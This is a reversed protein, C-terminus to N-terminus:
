YGKFITEVLTVLNIVKEAYITLIILTSCACLTAVHSSTLTHSMKTNESSVLSSVINIGTLTSIIKFLVITYLTTYACDAVFNKAFIFFPIFGPFPPVNVFTLTGLGLTFTAPLPENKIFQLDKITILERDFKRIFLLGRLLILISLGLVIFIFLSSAIINTYSAFFGVFLMGTTGLTHLAIINKIINQKFAGWFGAFMGLMGLILFIIKFSECKFIVFLRIIILFYVFNSLFVIFIFQPLDIKEVAAIYLKHFPCFLMKALLGFTVLTIAFFILPNEMITLKTFSLKEVLLTFNTTQYIGYFLASGFLFFASGAGYAIFINFIARNECQKNILFIISFSILEISIFLLMFDNASFAIMSGLTIALTYFLEHNSLIFYKSHIVVLLYLLGWICLMIKTTNISLDSIFMGAFTTVNANLNIWSQFNNPGVNKSYVLLCVTCGLLACVFIYQIVRNINPCFLVCVSGIMLIIEPLAPYCISFIELMVLM